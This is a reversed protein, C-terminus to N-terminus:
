LRLRLHSRSLSFPCFSLGRISTTLAPLSTRPRYPAPPYSPATPEVACQSPSERLESNMWLRSSCPQLATTTAAIDWSAGGPLHHPWLLLDRAYRSRCGRSRRQKTDEAISEVLIVIADSQGGSGRRTANGDSTGGYSTFRRELMQM